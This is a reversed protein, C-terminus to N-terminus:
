LIENKLEDASVTATGAKGVVIGAAVNALKAAEEMSMGSVLGLTFASIVTDGAGSVDFIKKATTPIHTMNRDKDFLTMGDRGRTILLSRCHIENFIKDAALKLTKEDKINFGCYHGAEGKNPTLTNIFKHAEFNSKQPDSVIIIPAPKDLLKRFEHMFQSSIVGKNYDSIIIGDIFNLKSKIFNLIINAAEIDLKADSERDYRVVQYNNGIVRTKVTTPRNPDIVVGGIELDMESFRSLIEGGYVDAGVVGCIIPKAGLSVLNNIVNGAGGLTTTEEKVNVIPVPAEPSIRFVKGQIYKDMMIDGIVLIRAKKFKNIMKEMIM